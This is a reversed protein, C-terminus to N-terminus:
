VKDQEVIGTKGSQNPFLSEFGANESKIMEGVYRWLTIEIEEIKDEIVNDYAYPDDEADSDYYEFATEPNSKIQDVKAIKRILTNNDIWSRFLLASKKDEKTEAFAIAAKISNLVKNTELNIIIRRLLFDKADSSEEEIM